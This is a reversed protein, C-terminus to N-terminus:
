PLYRAPLFPDNKANLVLTPVRIDDLVLCASARHWYDEVDRYGHLPATVVNDFQHLNKAALMKERDFLKPFQKLKELCKPKLTRLFKKTNKWNQKPSLTAGSQTLNLPASIACAATVFQAQQQSEGLWRLLANGGLSVGCVYLASINERRERHIRHLIWNIEQADGSHYFRPALNMEGSCARFHPVVGSWGLTKIHAMLARAYHSNSSGELGHFLVLLPKGVEGDVFDVDIFDQDPTTWRERRYDVEPKRIFLAPYITQSHGDPLWFPATYSM